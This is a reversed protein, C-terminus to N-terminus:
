HNDTQDNVPGDVREGPSVQIVPLQDLMELAIAVAHMEQAKGHAPIRHTQGVVQGAAQFLPKLTYVGIQHQLIFQAVQREDSQVPPQFCVPGQGNHGNDM